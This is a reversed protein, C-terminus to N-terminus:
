MTARAYRRLGLGTAALGLGILVLLWVPFGTFPLQGHRAAAVAGLVGGRAKAGAVGGRAKAGAVGHGGQKTAAAGAVGGAQSSSAGAVGGTASVSSSSTVGASVGAQTQTSATTKTSSSATTTSACSASSYNKAAHVDVGHKHKCDTVKHPQSNGPGNITTGSPAGHSTAVQAATTGNGYQKSVDSKGSTNNAATGSNSATCTVSGGSGGTTCSTDKHATTANTPKMGPDATSNQSASGSSGSGPPNGPPNGHGNGALASGAFAVLAVTLLLTSLVGTFCKKM